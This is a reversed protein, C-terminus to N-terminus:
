WRGISSSTTARSRLGPCARPWGARFAGLARGTPDPGDSVRSDGRVARKRRRRTSSSAMAACSRAAAPRPPSSRSAQRWPRSCLTPCPTSSRRCRWYRRQQMPPPCPMARSTDALLHHRSSGPAGARAELCAREPGEGVIHLQADPVAARVERFAQILYGVGKREILRGVFLVRKPDGVPGPGFHEVDVGNPIVDIETGPRSRLALERLGRSVAVVRGAGRWIRRAIFTMLLPDLQRLRENYGPVDSGRLAVIHPLRLRHGVIGSPWGAWSHCCDYRGRRALRATYPLAQHMWALIEGVRWYQLDYALKQYHGYQTQSTLPVLFEVISGTVNLTTGSDAVAAMWASSWKGCLWNNKSYFNASIQIQAGPAASIALDGSFLVSLPKDPM